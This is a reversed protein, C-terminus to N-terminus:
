CFNVYAQMDFHGSYTDLSHGYKFTKLDVIKNNNQDYYVEAFFKDIAYLVIKQGDVSVTDLYKGSDWVTQFRNQEDLMNFEYLTM